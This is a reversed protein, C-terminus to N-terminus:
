GLLQEMPTECRRVRLHVVRSFGDPVEVPAAPSWLVADAPFAPVSWSTAFDVSVGSMTRALARAWGLVADRFAAPEAGERDILTAFREGSADAPPGGSLVHEDSGAPAIRSRDMFKEEDARLIDGIPGDMLAAMAAVDTAWFEAITDVGPGADDILHNRVYRAFPFHRIALPSHNTEYYSQFAARDSDPRHALACISKMM